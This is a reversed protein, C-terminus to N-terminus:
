ESNAIVLYQKVSGFNLLTSLECCINWPHLFSMDAEHDAFTLPEPKLPWNNLPVQSLSSPFNQSSFNIDSGITLKSEKDRCMKFRTDHHMMTAYSAISAVWFAKVVSSLLSKIFLQAKTVSVCPPRCHDNCPEITM